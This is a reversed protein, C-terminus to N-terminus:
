ESAFILYGVLVAVVFVVITMLAEECGEGRRPPVRDRVVTGPGPHRPPEQLGPVRLQARLLWRVLVPLRGQSSPAHRLTPMPREDHHQPVHM